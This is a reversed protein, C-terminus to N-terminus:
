LRLKGIRAPSRGEVEREKSDNIISLVNSKQNVYKSINEFVIKIKQGISEQIWGNTGDPLQNNNTQKKKRQVMFCLIQM